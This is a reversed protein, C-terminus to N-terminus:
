NAIAAAGGTTRGGEEAAPEAKEAPDPPLFYAVLSCLGMVGALIFLGIEYNHTWDKLNGMLVPGFFSGSNGVSNIFAIGGAAAAGSLFGTTLAWFPGNAAATGMAVMTIAVMTWLPSRTSAALCIGLAAFLTGCAVHLRREGTRDSHSASLVLCVAGIVNPIAGIWLLQENTWPTRQKLLLNQFFGLGAGGLIYLFFLLALHLVRPYAFAQLLSLHHYRQRHEQEAAMKRVLWEREQPELWHAQEPRNTMYCLVLVGLLITPIGEMLFLWQWGRLYLLGDLKLFQAGLPGGIINAVTGALVFRAAARGRVANPFWFTLYLMMGPFFGAEALGLCFRLTYFSVPSRVFLMCSAILGWTLMIRAIWIRAGLRQLMVNSPVEFFFYGVFFIGAGLGYVADSFGLDPKMTLVAISINVRDLINFIYLLFMFPILRRTVKGLTVRELETATLEM